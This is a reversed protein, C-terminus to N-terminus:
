LPPFDMAILFIESRSMKRRERENKEGGENTNLLWGFMLPKWSARSHVADWGSRPFVNENSM